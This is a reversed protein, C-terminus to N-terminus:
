KSSFKVNYMNNKLKFYNINNKQLAKLFDNDINDINYINCNMNYDCFIVPKKIQPVVYPLSSFLKSQNLIYSEEYTKNFIPIEYLGALYFFLFIKKFDLSFFNM